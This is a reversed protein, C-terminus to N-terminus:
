WGDAEAIERMGQSKVLGTLRVVPDRVGMRIQDANVFPATELVLKIAEEIQIPADEERPEVAMGNIV